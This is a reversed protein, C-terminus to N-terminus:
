KFMRPLAFVASVAIATLTPGVPSADACQCVAFGAAWALFNWILSNRRIFYHDIVLVTAMPAFVSAILNLFTLYYNFVGAAALTGGVLVVIVGVPQPKIRNCLNKASEGASYADLFTTAMTSLAIIAMGLLAFPRGMGMLGHALDAHGSRFLLFGLAFMWIGTLTYAAVSVLTAAFPREADKTYDSILPLWSLPLALSIEFAPWFGLPESVTTAASPTGIMRVTVFLCLAALLGMCVTATRSASTGIFFWLIVLASLPLCWTPAASATLTGIAKAGIAIMVSTWGVLQILNLISFFLTGRSGFAKGVSEMANLRSRAGILGMMFLLVGGLLHGTILAAWNCGIQSGAEIEALSVAAGFWLTGCALIGRKKVKM